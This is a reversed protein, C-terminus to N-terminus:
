IHILSLFAVKLDTHEVHLTWRETTGHYTADVFRMTEFGSASLEEATPSYTTIDAPGLKLRTVTIDGLNTGKAVYATATRKQADIVTAGIQGAVTFAREIPQEAVITWEYDQYLSLTTYIPSRMDFTGTLERSSRIQQLVEEKDLQISHIVADYGVADIRVNRIDTAEDLSLTVTRSTVNNESVSFGQGEVGAIRLEVVPYPIDNHICSSALLAAAALLATKLYRTM